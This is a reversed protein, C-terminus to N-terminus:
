GLTRCVDHGAIITLFECVAGAHGGTLLFPLRFFSEHFYHTSQPYFVSVLEDLEDRTFLLGVPPLHDGHAVAKLSVRQEDKLHIPTGEEILMLSSPSGYSSFVVAKREGYLKFNKFFDNWLDKDWYTSQGEDFIFVTNNGEVWHMEDRLHRRYGRAKEVKERPWRSVWIVNVNKDM